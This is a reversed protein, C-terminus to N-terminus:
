IVKYEYTMTKTEKPQSPLLYKRTIDQQILNGDSNYNRNDITEEWEQDSDSGNVFRKFHIIEATYYPLTFNVPYANSKRIALPLSDNQPSYTTEWRLVPVPTLEQYYQYSKMNGNEHYQYTRYNKEEGTVLDISADKIIQGQDNYTIARRSTVKGSDVGYLITFDWSIYGNEDALYDYRSTAKGTSNYSTMTKVFGNADYSYEYHYSLQGSDYSQLTILQQSSNYQYGEILIGDEYIKSLVSIPALSASSNKKCANIFVTMSVLLLVFPTCIKKM